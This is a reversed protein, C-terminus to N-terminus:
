AASMSFVFPQAAVTASCGQKPVTWEDYKLKLKLQESDSLTTPPGLHVSTTPAKQTGQNVNSM